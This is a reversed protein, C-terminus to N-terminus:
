IRYKDSKVVLEVGVVKRMCQELYDAVTPKVGSMEIDIHVPGVTHDHCRSHLATPVLGRKAFLEVLRPLVSPEAAAQVAFCVTPTSETKAPFPM